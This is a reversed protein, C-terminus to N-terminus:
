KDDDLTPLALGLIEHTKKQLDILKHALDLKKELRAARKELKEIVRDKDDRSSKRGPKQAELGAQGGAELQSRWQRLQASYIAERRLLAALQGRETCRDAEKIIRAKDAASFRRRHRRDNEPAAFIENNHDAPKPM